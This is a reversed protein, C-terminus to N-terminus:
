AAVPRSCREIGGCAMHAEYLDNFLPIANPDAVEEFIDLIRECQSDTLLVPGADTRWEVGQPTAIFSPERM